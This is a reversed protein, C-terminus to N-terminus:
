VGRELFPLIGHDRTSTQIQRCHNAELPQYHFPGRVVLWRNMRGLHLIGLGDREKRCVRDWCVLHYKRDPSTGQWLFRAGIQDICELVWVPIRDRSFMYLPIASLVARLMVIRGGLSLFKGKWHFLQRELNAYTKKKKKKNELTCPSKSIDTTALWTQM